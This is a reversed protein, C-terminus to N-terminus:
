ILGIGSVPGSTLMESDVVRNMILVLSLVM